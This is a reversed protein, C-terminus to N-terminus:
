KDYSVSDRLEKSSEEIEKRKKNYEKKFDDGSMTEVGYVTEAMEKIIDKQKKLEERVIELQTRLLNRVEIEVDYRFSESCEFKSVSGLFNSTDSKVSMVGIKESMGFIAVM